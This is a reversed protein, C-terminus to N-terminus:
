PEEGALRACRTQGNASIPEHQFACAHLMPYTTKPNSTPPPLHSQVGAPVLPRPASSPLPYQSSRCRPPPHLHYKPHVLPPLPPDPHYEEGYHSRRRGKRQAEGLRLSVERATWRALRLRAVKEEEGWSDQGCFRWRRRGGRM